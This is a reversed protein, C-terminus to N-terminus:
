LYWPKLAEGLRVLGTKKDLISSASKANADVRDAQQRAWELWRGTESGAAIERGKQTADHEVAMVYERIVQARKWNNAAAELQKIRAEEIGIQRKLENYEDLRKQHELEKRRLEETRRRLALAIRMFGAVCHPLLSELQTNRGDRWGKRLTESCYSWVQVALEGTPLYDIPKGGFTLIRKYQQPLRQPPAPLEVRRVREVLGFQIEEGFVSIRTSESKTPDLTVNLGEAKLIGILNGM